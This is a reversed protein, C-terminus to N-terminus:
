VEREKVASLLLSPFALRQDPAKTNFSGFGAATLAEKLVKEALFHTPYGMIRTMLEIIAFTLPCSESHKEAMHNSIFLGGMKMSKNVQKLFVSLQNTAAFEYLYHSSFFFDYTNGFDDNTRADFPHYSIRNFNPEGKKIKRAIKCVTDLDYVKAKLKPNESLFALACYGASGAFDCMKTATKFEPITKAFALVNQIAGAKGGQEMGKIVEESSWMTPDFKQIDGKLASQLNKFPGDTVAFSKLTHLQNFGSAQTLYESALITLGYKNDKKKLYNVVTLVELLADTVALNTKIKESLAKCSMANDSLAEFIGVDIAANIINPLHSKYLLNNIESFASIPKKM